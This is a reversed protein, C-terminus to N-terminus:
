TCMGGTLERYVDDHRQACKEWTYQQAWALGKAGLEDPRSLIDGIATAIDEVSTPDFYRAADGCVEPLAGARSAAVPCGCAMAEITPLGFSEHLSPFVLGSAGRYLDSLVDQSVHGRVSVGSPLPLRDLGHGALILSLEPRDRRVLTFADFLREHNKHRWGNAPYLLFPKRTDGNPHFHERDVGLHIARVRDRDVSYREVLLDGLHESPVIVLRSRRLTSGYVVKRYLREAPTLTSPFLNDIVDHVTVAAPLERVRPLMVTLPFHIAKLRDLELERRISGPRATALVMARVRGPMSLSARYAPVTKGPLGDAADPAVTPTFVRYELSGVRALARVLERAYTESGGVVKPVLTLLSIGVM